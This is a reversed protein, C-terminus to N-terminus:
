KQFSTGLFRRFYVANLIILVMEPDIKDIHNPILGKKAESVWFNIRNLTAPHNYDANKV